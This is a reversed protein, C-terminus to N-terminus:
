LPFQVEGFHLIELLEKSVRVAHSLAKWDIGAADAAAHARTGYKELSNHVSHRITLIATSEGYWKGAIQMERIGQPNTRADDKPLKDWVSSLPATEAGGELITYFERLKNLRDGKLSYKAAQGRAYGIFANMQKSLLLKRNSVIRDWVWGNEASKFTMSEPAFLMDIAVTQGQTALRLFHHLSYYEVDQEGPLNKRTDDRLGEHYTKPIRGLIIEEATPLFLGKFDEDSTETATGYLHSGFRIECIMKPPKSM